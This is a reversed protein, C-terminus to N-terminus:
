RGRGLATRMLDLSAKYVTTATTHASQASAARVMETEISVNNGNLDVPDDTEQMAFAPPRLGSLHDPRTRAMVFGRGSRSSMVEAFDEFKKARYGPTDANAMNKATQTQAAGAYRALTQADRMVQPMEFM